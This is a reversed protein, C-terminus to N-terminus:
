PTPLANIQAALWNRLLNEPTDGALWDLDHAAVVQAFIAEGRQQEATFEAHWASTAVGLATWGNPGFPLSYNVVWAASRVYAEEDKVLLGPPPLSLIVLDPNRKRNDQSWKEITALDNDAIPWPTITLEATPYRALVVQRFTDALPEAVIASVPKGARLRAVFRAATLPPPPEDALSIERGAIASAVWGAICKHGAMSPHITESMLFRWGAPDDQRIQEWHSYVDVVPVGLAEGQARVIQAFEGLRSPPRRPVAEPYVSNPSCLIVEAGAERCQAAISALNAAYHEKHRADTAADVAGYALDNMGFKVVVLHPKRDLVDHQIRQLGMDTTHGSIGANFVTVKTQPYLHQLALQLMEPWARRSGSHYYIGTISDGFVVVRTEQGAALREATKPVVSPAASATAITLALTMTATRLQRDM